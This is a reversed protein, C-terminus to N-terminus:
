QFLVDPTPGALMRGPMSATRKGCAPKATRQNRRSLADGSPARRCSFPNQSFASAARLAPHRRGSPRYRPAPREGREVAPATMRGPNGRRTNGAGGWPAISFDNTCRPCVRPPEPPSATTACGVTCMCPTLATNCSTKSSVCALRAIQNLPSKHVDAKRAPLPLRRKRRAWGPMFNQIRGFDHAAELTTLSYVHFLGPNDLNKGGKQTSIITLCECAQYIYFNRQQATTDPSPMKRRAHRLLAFKKGSACVRINGGPPGHRPAGVKRRKDAAAGRQWLASATM